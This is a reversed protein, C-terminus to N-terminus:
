RSDTKRPSCYKAGVFHGGWLPAVPCLHLVGALIPILGLGAVAVAIAGDLWLIAVTIISLGFAGRVLRGYGSAMFREFWSYDQTTSM